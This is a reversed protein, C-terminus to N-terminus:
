RRAARASLVLGTGTFAVFMLVAAVISSWWVFKSVVGNALILVAAPGYLVAGERFTMASRVWGECVGRARSAARAVFVLLAAIVHGM